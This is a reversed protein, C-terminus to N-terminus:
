QVLRRKKSLFRYLYSRILRKPFLKKEKLERFIGYVNNPLIKITLLDIFHVRYNINNIVLSFRLKLIM